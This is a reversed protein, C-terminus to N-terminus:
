CVEHSTVDAFIFVRNDDVRLILGTNGEYRGNIVRVHDGERFYKRM